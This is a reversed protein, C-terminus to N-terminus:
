SLFASLVFLNMIINSHDMGRIGAVLIGVVEGDKNTVPSGSNGGLSEASVFWKTFTFASGIYGTTINYHLGGPYGSIKIFDGVGSHKALQLEKIKNVNGSVLGMECIDLVKDYFYKIPIVEAITYFEGFGDPLQLKMAEEQPSEIWAECVHGATILRGEVSFATGVTGGKEMKIYVRASNYVPSNSAFAPSIGGLFLIAFLSIVIKKM